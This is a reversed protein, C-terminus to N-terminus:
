RRHALREPRQGGGAQDIQAAALATDAHRADRQRYEDLHELHHRHRFAQAGLEGRAAGGLRLFLAQALQVLLQRADESRAVVRAEVFHVLVEVVREVFGGVRMVQGPLPARQAFTHAHVAAIHGELGPAHGGGDALMPGHQIRDPAVVRTGCEVGGDVMYAQQIVVDDVQDGRQGLLVGAGASGSEVGAKLAWKEAARMGPCGAMFSSSSPLVTSMVPAELPMPRAAAWENAASPQWRCSAARSPRASALALSSIPFIWGISTRMWGISRAVGPAIACNASAAPGTSMRTFLAPSMGAPGM